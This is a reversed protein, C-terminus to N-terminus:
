SWDRALLPWQCRRHSTRRPGQRRRCPPARVAPWAAQRPQPGPQTWPCPPQPARTAADRPHPQNEEAAALRRHARREVVQIFIGNPPPKPTHLLETQQEAGGLFGVLIAKYRTAGQDRADFQASTHLTGFVGGGGFFAAIPKRRNQRCHPVRVYRIIYSWM